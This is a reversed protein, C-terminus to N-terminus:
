GRTSSPLQTLNGDSLPPISTFTDNVATTIANSEFDAFDKYENIESSNMEPSINSDLSGTFMFDGFDDNDDDVANTLAEYETLRDIDESDENLTPSSAGIHDTIPSKDEEESSNEEQLNRSNFYISKDIGQFDSSLISQLMDAVDDDSSDGSNPTSM